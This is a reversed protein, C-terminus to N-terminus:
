RYTPTATAATRTRYRSAVLVSFLTILTLVGGVYPVAVIVAAILTYAADGSAAVTTALADGRRVKRTAARDVRVRSRNAVRLATRNSPPASLYVECAKPTGNM